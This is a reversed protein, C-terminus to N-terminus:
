KVDGYFRRIWKPIRRLNKLESHLQVLDVQDQKSFRQTYVMQAIKRKNASEDLLLTTLEDPDMDIIDSLVKEAREGMTLIPATVYSRAGHLYSGSGAKKKMIHMNPIGQIIKKKSKKTKSSVGRGCSTCTLALFFLTFICILIIGILLLELM